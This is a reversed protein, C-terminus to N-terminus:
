GRAVSLVPAQRLAPAPDGFRGIFMHARPLPDFLFEHPGKLWLGDYVRSREGSLLVAEALPVLTAEWGPSWQRARRTMHAFLLPWDSYGHYDFALGDDRVAVIHHGHHGGAPRIWIPSFRHRAHTKLFAATLIHCAGCAFFVRDPLAWQAVLDRKAGKTRRMYM